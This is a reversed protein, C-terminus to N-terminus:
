FVTRPYQQLKLTSPTNGSSIHAQPFTPRHQLNDQEDTRRQQQCRDFNTMRVWVIQQFEIHLGPEDDMVGLNGQKRKRTQSKRSEHSAHSAERGSNTPHCRKNECDAVCREISSGSDHRSDQDFGSVSRTRGVCPAGRDIRHPRM